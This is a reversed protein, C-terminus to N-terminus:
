KSRNENRGAEPLEKYYPLGAPRVRFFDLDRPIQGADQLQKFQFYENSRRLVEDAYYDGELNTQTLLLLVIVIKRM